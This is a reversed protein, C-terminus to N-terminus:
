ACLNLFTARYKDNTNNKGVDRVRKNDHLKPMQLDTETSNDDFPM